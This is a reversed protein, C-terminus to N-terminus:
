IHLPVQPWQQQGIAAVPVIPVDACEYTHGSPKVMVESSTDWGGVTAEAIARGQWLRCFAWWAWGQPVLCYCNSRHKM